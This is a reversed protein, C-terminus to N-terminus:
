KKKKKKKKEHSNFKILGKTKEKKLKKKKM